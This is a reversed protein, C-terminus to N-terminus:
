DMTNIINGIVSMAYAFVGCTILISLSCFVKEIPTSPNIDGYGVTLM